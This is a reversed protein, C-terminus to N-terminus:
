LKTCDYEISKLIKEFEKQDSKKKFLRPINPPLHNKLHEVGKLKKIQINALIYSELELLLEVAQTNYRRNENLAKTWFRIDARLKQTFKNERKFLKLTNM